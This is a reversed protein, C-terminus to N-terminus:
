IGPAGQADTFNSCGMEPETFARNLYSPPSPNPSLPGRPLRQGGHSNTHTLAAAYVCLCVSCVLM